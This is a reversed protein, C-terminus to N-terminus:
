EPKNRVGDVENLIAKWKEPFTAVFPFQLNTKAFMNQVSYKILPTLPEENLM